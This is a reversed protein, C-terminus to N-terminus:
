RRVSHQGPGINRRADTYAGVRSRYQPFEAVPTGDGANCSRHRHEHSILDTGASSRRNEHRPLNTPLPEVHPAKEWLFAAIERAAAAAPATMRKGRVMLRRWRACWIWCRRTRKTRCAWVPAHAPWTLRALTPSDPGNTKVREGPKTPDDGGHVRSGYICNTSVAGLRDSRAGSRSM